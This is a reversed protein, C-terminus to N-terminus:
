VWEGAFQAFVDRPINQQEHAPKGEDTYVDFNSVDTASKIKPTYPAPLLKDELAQFDIGYFWVHDQAEKAGGKIRGGWGLRHLPELKLLEDIFGKAQETFIAANPVRCKIIKRYGEMPDSAVFPTSGTLCEYAM